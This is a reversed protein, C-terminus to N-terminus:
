PISVNELQKLKYPNCNEQCWGDVHGRFHMKDVAISCSAIRSSTPTNNARVPNEAYKKLHCGDDYCITDILPLPIM